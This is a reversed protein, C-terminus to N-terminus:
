RAEDPAWRLIAAARTFGVGQSYIGVLAGPRVAGADRAKLLNAIASSAGLHAYDSFTNPAREPALGLAEAVAGPIWGRPQTCALVDLEEPRLKARECASVTTEFGFRVTNGMLEKMGDRDKSGLCFAGGPRHWPTDEEPESGRVYALSRYHDGHTKGHVALIGPRESPSVVIATAGDGIGPSAPHGMPFIRTMLNSQTLLVHRARGTEILAAAMSLQLVASACAADTGMAWARDAGVIDAVRTAAPPTIRDPVMTWSMVVDIDRGEIGADLLATKAAEAEAEASETTEHVVRREKAGIFRDGREAAMHRACIRDIRDGASEPMEALVRASASANTGFDAPWEDNTRRHPPVWLGVGSIAARM